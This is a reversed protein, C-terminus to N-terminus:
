AINRSMPKKWRSHVRELKERLVEDFICQIAKPDSSGSARRIFGWMFGMWFVDPSKLQNFADEVAKNETKMKEAFGKLPENNKRLYIPTRLYLHATEGDDFCNGLPEGYQDHVTWIHYTQNQLDTYQQKCCEKCPYFYIDLEDALQKMPKITDNWNM